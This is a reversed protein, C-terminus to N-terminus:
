VLVTRPQKLEVLPIQGWTYVNYDVLATAIHDTDYRVPVDFECAVEILNGTTVGLTIIGKTLNLGSGGNTIVQTGGVWVNLSGAVVKTIDRDYFISGFSYRKYIQWQTHVGDTTGIAQRAMTHDQWDKFRFGTARGRVSMFHGRILDLEIQEKVGYAVDYEARTTSWDINRKEFGSSLEMITTKFKPGGLAGWSIGEPMREEVFDVM